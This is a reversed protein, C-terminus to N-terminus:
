KTPVGAGARPEPAGEECILTSQKGVGKRGVFKRDPQM